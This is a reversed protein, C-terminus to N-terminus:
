SLLGKHLSQHDKHNKTKKGVPNLPIETISLLFAHHKNSYVLKKKRELVSFKGVAYFISTEIYIKKVLTKHKVINVLYCVSSMCNEPSFHM